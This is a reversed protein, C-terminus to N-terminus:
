ECYGSPIMSKITALLKEAYDRDTVATKLLKELEEIRDAALNALSSVAEAHMFEGFKDGCLNAETRQAAAFSRLREVLLSDFVQREDFVQVLVPSLVIVCGLVMCGTAAELPCYRM